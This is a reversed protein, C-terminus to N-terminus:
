RFPSNRGDTPRTQGVPGVSTETDVGPGTFPQPAPLAAPEPRPVDRLEDPEAALLEYLLRTAGLVGLPLMVVGLCPMWFLVSFALGFGLLPRVHTFMFGLRESPGVGRLTLPYDFLNWALALGTVLAKLPITLLALPPVLWEVVTLLLVIPVGFSLAIFQAKLGILLEYFFGTEAREPVFMAREQIAVLRELAPGSLPPTLVVATWIGAVFSAFFLVFRTAWEAATLYWAEGSPLLSVVWPVFWTVSALTAAVTLVTFLVIPVVMMPWTTPTQWAFRVALFVQRM